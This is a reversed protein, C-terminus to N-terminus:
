RATGSPQAYLSLGTKAKLGNAIGYFGPDALLRRVSQRFASLFMKSTSPRSTEISFDKKHIKRFNFNGDLTKEFIVRGSSNETVSWVVRVSTGGYNEVEEDLPALYGIGICEGHTARTISAKLLLGEGSSVRRYTATKLEEGIVANLQGIPVYANTFHEKPPTSTYFYALRANFGSCVAGVSISGYLEGNALAVSVDAIRIKQSSSANSIVISSNPVNQYLGCGGLLATALTLIVLKLPRSM